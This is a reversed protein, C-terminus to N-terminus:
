TKRNSVNILGGRDVIVVVSTTPPWVVHGRFSLTIGLKLLVENAFPDLVVRDRYFMNCILEIRSVDKNLFHLIATYMETPKPIQKHSLKGIEEVSREQFHMM